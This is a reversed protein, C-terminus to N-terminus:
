DSAAMTPRNIVLITRNREDVREYRFDDVGERALMVGLGGIARQDLPLGLEEQEPLVKTTPDFPRATDEIVVTLARDDITASLAVSGSEGVEEYGHVIVNTALEDVALRLRYAAAKDLDAAAAAAMVYQGIPSLSELHGPLIIPDV